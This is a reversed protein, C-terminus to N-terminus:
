THTVHSHLFHETEFNEIDQVILWEQNSVLDSNKPCKKLLEKLTNKTGRSLSKNSKDFMNKMVHRIHEDTTFLFYRIMDIDKRVIAGHFADITCFNAKPNLNRLYQFLQLNYVRNLFQRTIQKPLFNARSLKFIEEDHGLSRLPFESCIKEEQSMLYRVLSVESYELAQSIFQHKQSQTRNLRTYLFDYIVVPILRFMWVPLDVSFDEVQEILYILLLYRKRCLAQEIMATTVFGLKQVVLKVFDLESDQVNELGFSYDSYIKQCEEKNSFLGSKEILATMIDLSGSFIASCFQRLFDSFLYDVSFLSKVNDMIWNFSLLKVSHGYLFTYLLQSFNIHDIFHNLIELRDQLIAACIVNDIYEASCSMIIHKSSEYFDDSSLFIELYFSTFLLVPPIETIQVDLNRFFQIVTARDRRYKFVAALITDRNLQSNIHKYIYDLCSANVSSLKLAELLNEQTIEAGIEEHVYQLCEFYTDYDFRISIVDHITFKIEYEDHLYQLIEKRPLCKAKAVFEDLREPMLKLWFKFVEDHVSNCIKKLALTKINTEPFEKLLFQIIEVSTTNELISCVIDPAFRNELNLFKISEVSTVKGLGYLITSGLPRSYYQKYIPVLSQFIEPYQLLSAYLADSSIPLGCEILYLIFEPEKNKSQIAATITNSDGKSTSLTHLFPVMIPASRFLCIQSIFKNTIEMHYLHKKPHYKMLYFLTLYNADECVKLLCVYKSDERRNIASFGKHECELFTWGIAEELTNAYEAILNEIVVPCKFSDM